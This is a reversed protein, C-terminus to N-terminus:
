SNLTLQCPPPVIAGTYDVEEKEFEGEYLMNQVVNREHHHPPTKRNRKVLAAFVNTAEARRATEALRAEKALHADKIRQAEIMEELPLNIQTVANEM